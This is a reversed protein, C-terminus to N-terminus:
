NWFKLFDMMGKKQGQNASMNESINLHKFIRQAEMGNQARKFVAFTSMLIINGIRNMENFDTSEELIRKEDIETEILEYSNYGEETICPKMLKVKKTITLVKQKKFGYLLANDSLDDRTYDIIMEMLNNIEKVSFNSLSTNQNLISGLFSIYNSILLESVKTRNNGEKWQKTFRDKLNGRIRNEIDELLYDPNIQEIINRVKEERMYDAYLSNPDQGQNQLNSQNYAENMFNESYDDVM